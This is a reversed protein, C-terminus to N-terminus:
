AQDISAPELREGAAGEAGRYGGGGRRIWNRLLVLSWHAIYIFLRAGADFM